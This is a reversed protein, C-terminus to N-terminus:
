KGVLHEVDKNNETCLYELLETDPMYRLEYKVTWPKSYAGPDDITTELDITGFNRRHFRETVRLQETHPHGGTDLWTKDNQGATEVVLTDGDWHGISYGLWAPQMDEPFKRGDIFIERFTRIAEYLITIETSSQLIKYPYPVANVQPVGPLNCHGVPDDKSLTDQRRKYETAAWPLMPVDEPKTDAALNITYKVGNPQRWIGSLDPKGDGTKPAPANLNPSGDPNRPIGATPYKLWQATIPLTVLTILLCARM